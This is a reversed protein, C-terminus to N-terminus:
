RDEKPWLGAAGAIQASVRSSSAGAGAGDSRGVGAVVACMEHEAHCLVEVVYDLVAATCM